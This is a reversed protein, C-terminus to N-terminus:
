RWERLTHVQRWRDRNQTAILTNLLLEDDGREQCGRASHCYMAINIHKTKASYLM